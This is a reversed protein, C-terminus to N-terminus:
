STRSPSSCCSFCPAREARAAGSTHGADIEDQVRGVLVGVSAYDKPYAKELQSQIQDLETQAADM